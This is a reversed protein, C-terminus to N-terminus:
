SHAAKLAIYKKLEKEIKKRNEEQKATLSGKGIYNKLKNELEVIKDDIEEVAYVLMDENLLLKVVWREVKWIWVLALGILILYAWAYASDASGAIGMNGTGVSILRVILFIIFAFWMFKSLLRGALGGDKSIKISFFALIVFPLAGGLVIGLAGYSILATYVEAPTLYAMALYSVILAVFPNVKRGSDTSFFPAYDLIAWILIALLIFYAWRATEVELNGSMWGTSFVSSWVSSLTDTVQNASVVHLSWIFSLAFVLGLSLVLFRKNVDLGM